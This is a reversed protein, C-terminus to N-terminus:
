NLTKYTDSDKKQGPLILADAAFNRYQQMCSRGAALAKSKEGNTLPPDKRYGSQMTRTFTMHSTYNHRLNAHSEQIRLCSKVPLQYM